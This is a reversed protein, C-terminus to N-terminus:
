SVREFARFGTRDPRSTHSDVFDSYSTHGDGASIAAHGYIRGRRTGTQDWTMVVGPTNLAQQETMGRVERFGHRVLQDGLQNAGNARVNQGTANRIADSVFHGCRSQSHRGSAVRRGAEALEPSGRGGPTTRRAPEFADVMSHGTPRAPTREPVRLSQGAQIHDPNTIGNQRALVQATTGYRSAIASLSDGRRIQYTSM